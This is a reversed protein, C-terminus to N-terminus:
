HQKLLFIQKNASCCPVFLYLTNNQIPTFSPQECEPLFTSRTHKLIPHQPSYNPDLLSLTVPSHLFNCLSSSLSRYEEGLIKRAILDLLILHSSCTARIPSLLPTYLTKTPLGSHFLGSPLGLYLHSSLTLICRWVIPHPTMCQISRARTLSLHRASCICYHFQKNWLILPIEQSASFRNAKELLVTSYPTLLYTLLYAHTPYVTFNRLTVAPPM